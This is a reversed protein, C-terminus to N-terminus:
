SDGAADPLHQAPAMADHLVRLVEIWPSKAPGAVRFVVLHRGRRGHRAVHLARLGKATHDISKAGILNPGGAPDESAQNLTAADVRAPRSGFSKASWAVTKRVDVLAADSIRIEGNPPASSM